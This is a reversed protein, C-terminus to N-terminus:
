ILLVDGSLIAREVERLEAGPDIGLDERLLVQAHRFVELAEAQRGVQHLAKMLQVTFRERFPHEATLKFLRPIVEGSRGAVMSAEILQDEAPLRQEELPLGDEHLAGTDPLDTFPRGRWLDLAQRSLEVAAGFRRETLATRGRAILDAFRDADLEGPEVLI